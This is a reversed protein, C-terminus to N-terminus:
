IIEQFTQDESGWLRMKWNQINCVGKGLEERAVAGSTRKPPHALIPVLHASGEVGEAVMDLM